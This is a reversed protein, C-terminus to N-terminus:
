RARKRRLLLGLGGLSLLLMSAPEPITNPGISIQYFEDHGSLGFFDAVMVLQIGLTGADTTFIDGNDIWGQVRPLTYNWDLFAGRWVQFKGDGNIEVNGLAVDMTTDQGYEEARVIGSEITMQGAAANPDSNFRIKDRVEVFSGGDVTWLIDGDLRLDDFGKYTGGDITVSASDNSGTGLTQFNDGVELTGGTVTLSSGERVFFDDGTSVAGDSMNMIGVSTLTNANQGTTFKNGLTIDDSASLTGGTMTFTGGNGSANPDNGVTFDRAALDGGASLTLSGAGAGTGITAVRATSNPDVVVDLMPVNAITSSSPPSAPNGGVPVGNPDSVHEWNNPDSWSTGDGGGDFEYTDFQGYSVAASLSFVLLFVISARYGLKRYM